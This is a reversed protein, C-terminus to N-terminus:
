TRDELDSGKGHGLQDPGHVPPYHLGEQSGLRTSVRSNNFMKENIGALTSQLLVTDCSRDFMPLLRDIM